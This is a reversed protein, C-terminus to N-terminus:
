SILSSATARYSHSPLSTKSPFQHFLRDLLEKMIEPLFCEGSGLRVAGILKLGEHLGNGVLQDFGAEHLAELMAVITRRAPHAYVAKPEVVLGRQINEHGIEVAAALQFSQCAGIHVSSELPGDVEELRAKLALEFGIDGRRLVAQDPLDGITARHQAMDTEVQGGFPHQAVAELAERVVLDAVDARGIM